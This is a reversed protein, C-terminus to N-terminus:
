ALLRISPFNRCWRTVLHLLFVKSRNRFVARSRSQWQSFPKLADHDALAEFSVREEKKLKLMLKLMERVTTHIDIKDILEDINDQKLNSFLARIEAVGNVYVADIRQGRLDDLLESGQNNCMSYFIAGASWVDTKESWKKEFMEPATYMGLRVGVFDETQGSNEKKQLFKYM